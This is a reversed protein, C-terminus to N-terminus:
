AAKLAQYDKLMVVGDRLAKTVWSALEDLTSGHTEPTIMVAKNGLRAIIRLRHWGKSTLVLAENEALKFGRVLNTLSDDLHSLTRFDYDQVWRKLKLQM